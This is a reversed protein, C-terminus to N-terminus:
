IGTLWGSIALARRDGTPPMHGAHMGDGGGRAAGDDRAPAAARRADDHTRSTTM